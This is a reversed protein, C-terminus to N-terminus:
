WHTTHTSQATTSNAPMQSPHREGALMVCYQLTDHLNSVMFVTETISQRLAKGTNGETSVLVKVAQLVRKM